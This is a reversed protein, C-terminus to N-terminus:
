VQVIPYNLGAFNPLKDAHGVVIGQNTRAPDLREEVRKGELLRDDRKMAGSRDPFRRHETPERSCTPRRDDIEVVWDDAIGDGRTWGERDIRRRRDAHVLILM